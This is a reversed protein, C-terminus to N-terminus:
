LVHMKMLSKRIYFPVGTLPEHYLETIYVFIFILVALFLLESFQGKATYGPFSLVHWIVINHYGFDCVIYIKIESSCCLIMNYQGLEPFKAMLTQKGAYIQTPIHTVPYTLCNM